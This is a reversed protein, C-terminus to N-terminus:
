EQLWRGALKSILQLLREVKEGVKQYLDATQLVYYRRQKEETTGNFKRVIQNINIGIAKLEKRILALEEMMPNMTADKQYLKIKRNALIHRCVEAISNSRSKERLEELQRFLKGPLRIILNHNLLDESNRTKKRPM